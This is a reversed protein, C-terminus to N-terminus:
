DEDEGGAAEAAERTTYLTKISHRAPSKPNGWECWGGNEHLMIRQIVREIIQRRGHVSRVFARLGVYPTVGDATKPWKDVVARLRELEAILELAVSPNFAAIHKSNYNSMEEGPGYQTCTAVDGCCPCPATVKSPHDGVEWPGPTSSNAVRKLEGLDM